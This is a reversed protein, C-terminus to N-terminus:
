LMHRLQFESRKMELVDLSASFIQVDGAIVLVIDKGNAELRVRGIVRANGM